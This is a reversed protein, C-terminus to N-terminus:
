EMKLLSDWGLGENAVTVPLPSLGVKINKLLRLFHMATDNLWAMPLGVNRKFQQLSRSDSKWEARLGSNCCKIHLTSPLTLYLIDLECTM